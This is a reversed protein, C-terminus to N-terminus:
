KAVFPAMAVTTEWVLMLTGGGPTVDVFSITFQEFSVPAVDLTMPVRLVDFKPNYNAAGSLNVTDDPNFEAQVPQNSFILTWAGARLDVLLNYVGPPLPKGGFDLTAQTTLRTTNNAGARWVPAGGKVATGYEAGAGFIATRGRLVPSGYDVTIWKGDRYQPGDPTTAWTGGVQIAALGRPSPPLDVVPVTQAALSAGLAVVAFTAFVSSKM